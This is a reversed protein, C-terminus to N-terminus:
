DNLFLKRRLKALEERVANRDKLSEAGQFGLEKLLSAELDDIRKIIVEEQHGKLDCKEKLISEISRIRDIFDVGFKLYWEVALSVYESKNEIADFKEACENSLAFMVRFKKM